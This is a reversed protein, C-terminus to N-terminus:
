LLTLMRECSRKEDGILLAGRLGLWKQALQRFGIKTESPGAELHLAVGELRPDSIFELVAQDLVANEIGPHRDLLPLPQLKAEALPFGVVATLPHVGGALLLEGVARDNIARESQVALLSCGNQAAQHLACEAVGAVVDANERSVSAAKLGPHPPRAEVM